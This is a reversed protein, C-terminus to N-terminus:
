EHVVLGGRALTEARTAELLAALELSAILCREHASVDTLAGRALASALLAHLGLLLLLPVTPRCGCGRSPSAKEETSM